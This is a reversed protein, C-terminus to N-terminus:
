EGTAEPEHGLSELRRVWADFRPCEARIKGLGMRRTAEEGHGIKDYDPVLARLRKSPATRAGDDIDEPTPFASRVERLAQRVREPAGVAAALEDVDSFLLAEFEHRQVYPIVRGRRRRGRSRRVEEDIRGELEAVTTDGKRRFGYFDVLSTVADFSGALVVLDHALRAVDVNGGGPGRGQARGILIPTSEIGYLRLHDTLALRVFSEETAGEVTIALRTM